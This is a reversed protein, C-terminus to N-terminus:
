SKFSEAISARDNPSAHIASQPAERGLRCYEADKAAQQILTGSIPVRADAAKMKEDQSSLLWQLVEGGHAVITASSFKLDEDMGQTPISVDGPVMMEDLPAATMKSIIAEKVVLVLEETTVNEIELLAIAIHKPLAVCPSIEVQPNNKKTKTKAALEVVEELLSQLPYSAVNQTGFMEDM